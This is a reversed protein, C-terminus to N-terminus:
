AEEPVVETSKEVQPTQGKNSGKNRKGNQKNNKNQTVETPAQEQQSAEEVKNETTQETTASFEETNENVINIDDVTDEVPPETNDTEEPAQEQQQADETNEPAPNQAQEAAMEEITKDSNVNIVEGNPLTISSTMYPSIAPAAYLSTVPPVPSAEEMMSVPGNKVDNDKNYNDLTLNVTMGNGLKEIIKVKPYKTLMHKIESVQESYFSIQPGIIAQRNTKEFRGRSTIKILKHTILGM